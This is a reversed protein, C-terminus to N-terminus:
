VCQFCMSLAANRLHRFAFCPFRRLSLASSLYGLRMELLATPSAQQSTGSRLFQSLCHLSRSPLALPSRRFAFFPFAVPPLLAHSMACVQLPAPVKATWRHRPLASLMFLAVAATLVTPWHALPLALSLSCCQVIPSFIRFNQNSKCSGKAINFIYAYIVQSRPV